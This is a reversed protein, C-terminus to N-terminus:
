ANWRVTNTNAGFHIDRLKGEQVSVKFSMRVASVGIWSPPKLFLLRDVHSQPNGAPPFDFELKVTSAATTPDIESTSPVATALLFGPPWSIYASTFRIESDLKNVIHLRCRFWGDAEPRPSLTARLDPNEKEARDDSESRVLLITALLLFAAALVEPDLWHSELFADFM